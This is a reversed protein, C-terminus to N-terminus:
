ARERQSSPSQRSARVFAAEIDVVFTRPDALDGAASLMRLARTLAVVERAGVVTALEEIPTCAEDLPRSEDIAQELDLLLNPMHGVWRNWEQSRPAAASVPPTGLDFTPPCAGSDPAPPVMSRGDRLQEALDNLRDAGGPLRIRAGFPIDNWMVADNGTAVVFCPVEPHLEMLHHYVSAYSPSKLRTSVLFAAFDGTSQTARRADTTQLVKVGYSAFASKLPGVLTEDHDIVLVRRRPHAAGGDVMAELDDRVEELTPRFSPTPDLLSRLLSAMRESIGPFVLAPNPARTMKQIALYRAQFDVLDGHLEEGTAAWWLLVGYSFVDSAPTAHGDFQEPAAYGPTGAVYEGSNRETLRAIGFDVLKVLTKGDHDMTLMVNNPTVDRHVIQNAHVTALVGALQVFCDVLERMRMPRGHLRSLRAGLTEGDIYEMAIAPLGDSTEGYTYVTCLGPHRLRTAARVEAAFRDRTSPGPGGLATPHAVKVVALRDTGLQEALYATGFAGEGLIRVLRFTNLEIHGIRSTPNTLVTGRPHARRLAPGCPRTPVREAVVNEPSSAHRGTSTRQGM